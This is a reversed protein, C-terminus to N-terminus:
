HYKLSLVIQGDRFVSVNGGSQSVTIVYAKTHLSIAGAAAHRSGLGFPVKTSGQPPNITTVIEEITGDDAIVFAGDLRTYKELTSSIGPDTINRQERPYSHFPEFLFRRSMQLVNEADGVTFMTGSVNGHRVSGMALAMDIVSMLPGVDGTVTRWDMYKVIEFEKTPEFVHLQNPQKKDPKGTLCLIVEDPELLHRAVATVTYYALQTLPSKYKYPLFICSIGCGQLWERLREDQTGWVVRQDTFLHKAYVLQALELDNMIILVTNIHSSHVMLEAAQFLALDNRNPDELPQSRKQDISM